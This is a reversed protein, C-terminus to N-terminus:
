SLNNEMISLTSWLVTQGMDEKDDDINDQVTIEIESVPPPNNGGERFGEFFAAVGHKEQRAGAATMVTEATESEDWGDAAELMEEPVPSPTEQPSSSNWGEKFGEWFTRLMGKEEKAQAM